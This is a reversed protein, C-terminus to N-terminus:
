HSSEQNCHPSTKIQSAKTKLSELCLELAKHRTRQVPLPFDRKECGFGQVDVCFFSRALCAARALAARATPTDEMLDTDVILAYARHWRLINGELAELLEDTDEDNEMRVPSSFSLEMIGADFHNVFHIQGAFESTNDSPSRRKKELGAEKRAQANNEIIKAPLAIRQLLETQEPTGSIVILDTMFFARLHKVTRLFSAYLAPEVDLGSFDVLCKYPTHWEMINQQWLDRLHNLSGETNLILGNPCQLEMVRERFHNVFVIKEM